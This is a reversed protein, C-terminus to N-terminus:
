RSSGNLCRGDNCRMSWQMWPIRKELDFPHCCVVLFRSPARKGMGFRDMVPEDGVVVVVVRPQSCWQVVASNSGSCKVEAVTPRSTGIRLEPQPV